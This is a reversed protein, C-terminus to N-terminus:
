RRQRRKTMKRVMNTSKKLLGGLLGTVVHVGNGVKKLGYVGVRGLKRATKGTVRLVNRPGPVRLTMGRAGGRQKRTRARKAAAGNAGANAGANAGNAPKGNLSANLAAVASENIGTAGAANANAAARAAGAAEVRAAFTDANNPKMAEAAHAYENAGANANAAARAAGANNPKMKGYEKTRGGLFTPLWSPTTKAANIESQQVAEAIAENSSTNEVIPKGVNVPKSNVSPSKKGFLGNFFGKSAPKANAAAAPTASM